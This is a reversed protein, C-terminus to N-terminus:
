LLNHSHECQWWISIATFHLIIHTEGAAGRWVSSERRDLWLPLFHIWKQPKWNDYGLCMSATQTQTIKSTTKAAHRLTIQWPPKQRKTSAWTVIGPISVVGAAMQLADMPCISAEVRANDRTLLLLLSFQFNGLWKMFFMCLMEDGCHALFKKMLSVRCIGFFLTNYLLLPFVEMVCMKKQQSPCFVISRHNRDYFLSSIYKNAGRESAYVNRRRCWLNNSTQRTRDVAAQKKLAGLSNTSLHFKKVPIPQQIHM